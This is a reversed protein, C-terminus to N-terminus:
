RTSDGTLLRVSNVVVIISSASMGIVGMWPTLIGAVALPMALLNYGLAWAINQRIKNRCRRALELLDPLATLSRGVLIVDAANKALDSAGGVAVSIDAAALVPSDNIGDGIMMVKSQEQLQKLQQLKQEPTCQSFYQQINLQQAVKAVHKAHDGSIILSDCPLAAVVAAAEKRLPDELVFGGLVQHEDEVLIHCDKLPSNITHRMFRPAGLRYFQGEVWGSLGMGPHVEVREAQVRPLGAFARAIPHESFAELSAAVSKLKAADYGPATHIDALRFHGETLTGTKDFAVKQVGIVGELLDSRKLLIGRQNLAGMAATLASPTALALACPCTAVLVSVAFWLADPHGAWQWGVFTLLATILVVTVFHRALRDVMLAVKPKSALAKDQLAMIQSILAQKLPRSVEIVLAGYQNQSGGYVVDGTSKHVPEFEGSLMSEDIYSNGDIIRGDVPITEGAKVLVKQGQTLSRALCQRHEGDDIVTAAVPIFQTINASMESAKHRARHELYRSILLLFIFMCVSEFFVEGQQTLTALASASFLILIALSVPVDMNVSRARMARWASHYFDIGSYAVVPTTLVLSVWHLFHRTDEDLNGLLGFYLAVAIMMVQMSMLGALGLKKLFSRGVQQYEQEHVEPQFPQAHYGIREFQQLLASLKLKDAQWRVTARHASVNVAVQIIGDLKLLQKEILWACAACKIGELTLQIQKSNGEDAVLEQQLEPSDYLRLTDLLSQQESPTEAPATRFRYYDELGNDVISQAVAQCGPCCMARSQGLVEATYQNQQAVPEHCHYCQTM